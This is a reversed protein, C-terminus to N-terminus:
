AEIIRGAMLLEGADDFGVLKEAIRLAAGTIIASQLKIGFLSNNGFELHAGPHLDPMAITHEDARDSLDATAHQLERCGRTGPPRAGDAFSSRHLQGAVSIAAEQFRFRGRTF